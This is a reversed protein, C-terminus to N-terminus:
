KKGEQQHKAVLVEYLADLGNYLMLDHPDARHLQNPSNSDIGKMLADLHSAYDPVGLRVFAQFKLGCLGHQCDRWHAGLLTDWQWNRVQIGLHRWVWRHEFRMNAAIKPLQSLLLEKMAPIAPGAWPFAMSTRGDSIACCLIKSDQADPKLRDTEFDFAVPKGFAIFVRITNAAKQPDSEIRVQKRYDPGEAYPRGKTEFAAQLHQRVFERSFKNRDLNHLIWSPHYTPCLWANLKTSPIRWGAWRAMQGEGTYEGNDDNGWAYKCVSHVAHKGLLIIREPKLREILNLVGPRCWDVEETLPTRNKGQPTSARCSIANYLWCDQRMNIGLSFLLSLLEGGANGVFQQGKLDEYEGPGEGVILTKLRGQGTVPMKPNKCKKFLGCRGCEPELAVPAKQKTWATPSFFGM